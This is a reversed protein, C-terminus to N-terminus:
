IKYINFLKNIILIPFKFLKVFIYSIKNKLKCNRKLYDCFVIYKYLHSFYFSPKKWLTELYNNLVWSSEFLFGKPYKKRINHSLSGEEIYYIRLIKNIFYIFGNFEFILRNWFFSEPIFKLNKAEEPLQLVKKLFFTNYCSWTEGIKNKNWKYFAEKANICGEKPFNIGIRKGFQNECLSCIEICNEKNSINNWIKYFIEIADYKCSDDSDLILFLENETNKIGNIMAKIKGQNEQYIYRIPFDVEKQWKSVLEKTNDNSGDDIILWEFVPKNDIKKLTQNKLSNYVRHLKDARNFTPTFVTILCM